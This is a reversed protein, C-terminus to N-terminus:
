WNEKSSHGDYKVRSNKIFYGNNICGGDCLVDTGVLYGCRDDVLSTILFGLEEPEAGRKLGSYSLMTESAIGQEKETMPTKVFGPSVSFVRIGKTDMYKYACNQAYWQVFRKSMMYAFQANYSENKLVKSKKLMKKLFANEDKLILRYDKEKPMMINPLLHASDSAVDCIVGGNMVKYFERNMYVTGLANIRIITERDGMSGSIGACNIVKSVEGLSAAYEALKKVDELKSIDCTTTKIHCGTANLEEATKDLKTLNRGTIIVTDEKSLMAAVAKGIGSGGGTVVHVKGM